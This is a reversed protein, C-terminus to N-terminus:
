SLKTENLSEYIPGQSTLTSKYLTIHLATQKLGIPLPYNSLAESLLKLNKPSRTRGITVHPHFPKDEKKFGTRGLGDELAFVKQAIKGDEDKLGAWLVKPYEIGPFAGLRALEIDVPGSGQLLGDLTQKLADIKKLKVDGLFKLTLHINEPKVWKINCDLKKLHDQIQ